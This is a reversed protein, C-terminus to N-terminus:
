TLMPFCDFHVFLLDPLVQELIGVQDAANWTPLRRQQGGQESESDTNHVGQAM